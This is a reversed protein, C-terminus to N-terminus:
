WRVLKEIKAREIERDYENGIGDLYRDLSIYRGPFTEVFVHDRDFLERTRIVHRSEYPIVVVTDKQSKNMLGYTLYAGIGLGIFFGRVAVDVKDVM